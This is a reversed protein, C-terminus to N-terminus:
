AAATVRLAAIRELWPTAGLQEFIEQAERAAARRRRASRRRRSVRSARPLVVGLYFPTGVGPFSRPKAWARCDRRSEHGALRARFRLTHARLFRTLGGRPIAEVEMLLAEVTTMEGLAFAAEVAVVYSEKVQEAGIGLEAHAAFANSAAELAGRYDGDAFHVAARAAEYGSREQVDGSESMAQFREVDARVEAM